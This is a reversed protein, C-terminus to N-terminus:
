NGEFTSRITAPVGDQHLMIGLTKRAVFQQSIMVYGEFPGIPGWSNKVVYFTRGDSARAKGVIVMLHDDTTDESDFEEQRMEDTVEAAEEDETLQFVGGRADVRPESVDCDLAISYGNDLAHEITSMMDEVNVNWYGDYHMWNDPVPLEAKQDFGQKQYSMLEVYEDVPLQCVQRAYQSPSMAEDGVAVQSPVEGLYADLVGEIARPWYPSPKRASSLTKVMSTLVASLEGHNHVQQDDPLGDFQSAPMVGHQRAVLILDHSLGGESFRADGKAEIYRKAKELYAYRVAYLESLDVREGTLRLIETEFFSTTAFSWCTGTRGQSLAPAEDLRFEIDFTLEGETEQAALPASVVLVAALALPTSLNQILRM